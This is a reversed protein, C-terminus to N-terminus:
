YKHLQKKSQRLKSMIDIKKMENKAKRVRTKRGEWTFSIEKLAKIYHAKSLGRCRVQAVWEGLKKYRGSQPVDFDGHEKRYRKLKRLNNSFREDEMNWVFGIKNLKNIRELSLRNENYLRRMENVWRSLKHEKSAKDHKVQSVHLTGHIQSYEVLQRLRQDFSVNTTVWKFGIDELMKKRNEPLSANKYFRRQNKCWHYLKANGDQPSPYIKGTNKQFKLLDEYHGQWVKEQFLNNTATM